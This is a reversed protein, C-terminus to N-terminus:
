DRRVLSRRDTALWAILLGIAGFVLAGSMLRAFAITPDFVLGARATAVEWEIWHTSMQVAGIATGLGFGLALTMWRPM